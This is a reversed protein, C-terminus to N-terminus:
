LVLAMHELIMKVSAGPTSLYKKSKLIERLKFANNESIVKESKHINNECMDLIQIAKHRLPASTDDKKHLAIIKSVMELRDNTKMKLFKDAFDAHDNLVGTHTHIIHARSALTAPLVSVNPVLFFFHTGLTPEELMKLIANYAEHNITLSEIIFVKQGGSASSENQYKQLNPIENITLAEYVEYIFDPNGHTSIGRSALFDFLQDKVTPDSNEIFYTHFLKEPIKDAFLNM